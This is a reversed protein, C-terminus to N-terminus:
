VVDMGKWYNFDQSHYGIYTLRGAESRQIKESVVEGAVYYGGV